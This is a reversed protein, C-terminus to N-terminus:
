KEGSVAALLRDIRLLARDRGLASLTVGLPPSVASGTIAVRIPQALKGL